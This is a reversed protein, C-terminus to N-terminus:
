SAVVGRLRALLRDASVPGAGHLVLVVLLFAWLARQDLILASADRDFWAGIDAADLGHGTVDVWSQVAVFGIMGLAALRTFLGLVILAPLLLEAWTGAIVVATHLPSLQSLDYGAAEVARPFIQIYAGAPPAFLSPGLKTGASGWYYALLIGAFVLRALTPLLWHAAAGSREAAADYPRLLAAIM